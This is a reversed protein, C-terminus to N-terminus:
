RWQHHDDRVSKWPNRYLWGVVPQHNFFWRSFHHLEDIPLIIYGMYSISFHFDYFGHKFGGVLIWDCARAAIGAMGWPFHKSDSKINKEERKIREVGVYFFLGLGLLHGRRNWNIAPMQLFLSILPSDYQTEVICIYIYMWTDYPDSFYAVSPAFIYFIYFIYIVSQCLCSCCLNM